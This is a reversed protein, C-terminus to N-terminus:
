QTHYCPDLQAGEDRLFLFVFVLSACTEFLTLCLRVGVLYLFGTTHDVDCEIYPANFINDSYLMIM